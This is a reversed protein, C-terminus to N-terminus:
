WWPLEICGTFYYPHFEGDGTLNNVIVQGDINGGSFTLDAHPALVSGQVGIGSINLTEAEYFNYLVNHCMDGGAGRCMGGQVEFGMNAMTVDTGSINVLVTSEDPVQISFANANALVTGDLEFVNLEPDTGVLTIVGNGTATTATPELLALADSYRHVNESLAEFDVVETNREYGCAFTVGNGITSDAGGYAVMGTGVSGSPFNLTGGVVLAYTSCDVDMREPNGVSYGGSFNADGGVYMRGETDAGTPNADNLVIVNVEDIGSVICDPPPDGTAGGTGPDQTAGGTGPDETAGGTGPDQTAGGSGPDQTAGGSGPDDTSGGGTGPDDTSGGGSGPDSTSGGGVGGPDETSGGGVGGPDETSGGGVGGPDETGNGAMGGTDGVSGGGVGPNTGATGSDNGGVGSDTGGTGGEGPNIDTGGGVSGPDIISAEGANGDPGVSSGDGGSGTRNSSSDASPSDSGAGGCAVALVVVSLLGLSGSLARLAKM